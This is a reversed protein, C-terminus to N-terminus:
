EWGDRYPEPVAGIKRPVDNLLTLGVASMIALMIGTLVASWCTASMSVSSAVMFPGLFMSEMFFVLFSSLFKQPAGAPRRKPSSGLGHRGAGMYTQLKAVLFPFLLQVDMSRRGAWAITAHTRGDPFLVAANTGVIPNKDHSNQM